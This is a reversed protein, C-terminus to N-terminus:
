NMDWWPIEDPGVIFQWHYEEAEQDRLIVVADLLGKM